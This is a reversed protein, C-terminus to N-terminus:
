LIGFGRARALCFRQGGGAAGTGWAGPHGREPHQLTVRILRAQPLM